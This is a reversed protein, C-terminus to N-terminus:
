ITRWIGAELINKPRRDNPIKATSLMQSIIEGWGSNECTQCVFLCKTQQFKTLKQQSTQIEWLNNDKAPNVFASHDRTNQFNFNPSYFIKWNLLYFFDMLNYIDKCILCSIEIDQSDAFLMCDSIEVLLVDRRLCIGGKGVIFLLTEIELTHTTVM